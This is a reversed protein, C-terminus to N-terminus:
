PCSIRFLPSHVHLAPSPDLEFPCAQILAPEHEASTRKPSLARTQNKPACAQTLARTDPERARVQTHSRTHEAPACKPPARRAPHAHM